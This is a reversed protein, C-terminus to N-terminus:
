LGASPSYSCCATRNHSRDHLPETNGDFGIVTPRQMSIALLRSVVREVSTRQNYVLKFRKTGYAIQDRITPTLRVLYNCGKQSPFKPHSAPCLPYQRRHKKEDPNAPLTKAHLPLESVANNLIHNMYGWFWAIKAQFAHPYHVLAGLRADPDGPLQRNKYILAGLIADQSFPPRGTAEPLAPLPPLNEFLKEYRVRPPLDQAKFHPINKMLGELKTVIASFSACRPYCFDSNLLVLANM